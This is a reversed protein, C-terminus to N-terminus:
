SSYTYKFDMEEKDRERSYAANTLVLDCIHPRYERFNRVVRLPFINDMDLQRMNKTTMCLFEEPPSWFTVFASKVYPYAGESM